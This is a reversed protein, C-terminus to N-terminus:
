LRAAVKNLVDKVNDRIENAFRQAHVHLDDRAPPPESAGTRATSAGLVSLIEAASMGRAILDRKLAAEIEAHRVKRWQVVAVVVAATVGAIILMGLGFIEDKGLRFLLEDFM